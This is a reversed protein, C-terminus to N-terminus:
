PQLNTNIFFPYYIFPGLNNLILVIGNIYAGKDFVLKGYTLIIANNTNDVAKNFVTKLTDGFFKYKGVKPLVIFRLFQM